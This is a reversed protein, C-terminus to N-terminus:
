KIISFIINKSYAHSTINLVYVGNALSSFGFIRSIKGKKLFIKKSYYSKKGSIDFIKLFVERERDSQFDITLNEQVPNPYINVFLNNTDAIVARMNIVCVEGIETAISKSNRNFCKDSAVFIEIKPYRDESLFVYFNLVINWNIDNEPLFISNEPLIKVEDITQEIRCPVIRDFNTGKLILNATKDTVMYDRMNLKINISFNVDTNTSNPFSGAIEWRLSDGPRTKFGVINGFVIKNQKVNIQKENTNTINNNITSQVRLTALGPTESFVDIDIYQISDPKLNIPLQPKVSWEANLNVASLDLKTIDFSINGTNKIQYRYVEDQCTLIEDPGTIQEEFNLTDVAIAVGMLRFYVTDSEYNQAADTIVGIIQEHYGLTQPTFNIDTKFDTSIPLTYFKLQSLDITFDNSGGSVLFTNKILLDENGISSIITANTDNSSLIDVVGFDIDYTKIEPLTGEGKLEITIPKHLKWDSLYEAVFDSSNVNTPLFSTNLEVSDGPSLKYNVALLDVKDFDNNDTLTKQYLITGEYNGTNKIVVITDNKTGVRRKGWDIVISEFNPAAGRGRVVSKVNSVKSNQWHVLIDFAELSDPAFCVKVFLTDGPKLVVPFVNATDIIFEKGSSDFELSDILVDTNGSNIMYIRSCVSDGVRVNGFDLDEAWLDYSLVRATIPIRSTLDCDYILVLQNSLENTDGRPEFCMTGHITDGPLIYYPLTKDLVYRVRNDNNALYSSKILLTDKGKNIIDFDRCVSDRLDINGFNFDTPTQVELRSYKFRYRGGNGNKDRIDIIFMGDQRIDVVQANIKIYTTTDTISTIDWTFNYTSDSIVQAYDLGTNITDVYPIPLNEFAFGQVTGCEYSLEIVPPITDKRYPNEISSGIVHAYADADGVGLLIGQFGGSQCSIEHRGSSISFRAYHLNTGPIKQVMIPTFNSILEGDFVLSNLSKQKAILSVFHYRFQDPNVAPNGPTVFIVKQVFQEISPITVLAPDYGYADTSHGSHMLYQGIQVPKDAIWYAPADFYPLSVYDGSDKLFMSHYGSGTQFSVRTNPYFCTVRIMDGHPVFQYPLMKITAYKRGWSKVPQLMEVLHNKSDWLSILFQPVATRVHGSLFGIPKDSTVVTGTLDGTGKPTPYSQVLYCEGKNLMVSYHRFTQKLKLTVARPSFTINTSDESAIVMFESTRPTALRVSDVPPIDPPPQYQDNPQSLVVYNRGWKEVPIAAYSDTTKWQSSYATVTIPFDSTIEVANDIPVESQYVELKTDVYIVKISDAQLIFNNDPYYPAKVTINTTYRSTIFLQLLLGTNTQIYNENQMFSVFFHKGEYASTTQSRVPMWVFFVIVLIAFIRRM